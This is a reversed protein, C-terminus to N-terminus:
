ERSRREAEKEEEKAEAPRRDGEGNDDDDEQVLFTREWGRWRSRHDISCSRASALLSFVFFFVVDCGCSIGEGCEEDDDDDDGGVSRGTCSASLGSVTGNAEEEKEGEDGEEEEEEDCTGYQFRYQVANPNYKANPMAPAIGISAIGTKPTPCVVHFSSSAWSVMRVLPFVATM